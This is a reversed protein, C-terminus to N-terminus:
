LELRPSLSILDRGIEVALKTAQESDATVVEFYRAIYNRELLTLAIERAKELSDTDPKDIKNLALFIKKGKAMRTINMLLDFQKEVKIYADPSVDVLFLIVGDIEKLAAVAKREVDNMEEIPRDLLGPTDIIQIKKNNIIIHGIHITTTTFPYAAVKPKARTANRVFTSKGSSPAGAVIITPISPDLAPLKQIFVVLDRLYDLDRRCKKFLSLIRGRAESGTRQLERKNEAAMLLFRYKGFLKSAIKRGKSICSIANHIRPRDFEIEILRWYFPHLTDLLRTLDKVFDTKSIVVDHTKQLAALEKDFLTKAKRPYKSRIRELIEEYTPVHIRKAVETPDSYKVRDEM